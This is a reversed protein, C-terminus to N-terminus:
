RYPISLCQGKTSVDDNIHFSSKYPKQSAWKVPVKEFNGTDDDYVSYGMM